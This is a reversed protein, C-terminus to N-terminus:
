RSRPFVIQNDGVIHSNEPLAELVREIFARREHAVTLIHRMGGAFRKGHETEVKVPFGVKASIETQWDSATKFPAPLDAVRAITNDTQM